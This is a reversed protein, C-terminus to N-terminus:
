RKGQAVARVFPPIAAQLSEWPVAQPEEGALYAALNSRDVVRAEDVTLSVCGLGRSRAGGLPVLGAAMERLVLFLLPEEYGPDANEVLVQWAFETGAPVTESRYLVGEQAADADREIGVGARVQYSGDFWLEPRKLPADRFLVKSALWPSGFARCALCSDRWVAWALGEPTKNEEILEKMHDSTICRGAEDLPDCAALVADQRPWLGRLLREAHARLAGKLSSGPIFPRRQHDKVVAIDADTLEDSEGSGVRLATETRLTGALALRRSFTRFDTFVPPTAVAM